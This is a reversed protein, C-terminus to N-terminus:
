QKNRIMNIVALAQTFDTIPLEIPEWNHYSQQWCITYRMNNNYVIKTIIDISTLRYFKQIRLIRYKVNM